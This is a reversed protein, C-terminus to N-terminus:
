LSGLLHDAHYARIQLPAQQQTKGMKEHIKGAGGQQSRECGVERGQFNRGAGQQIVAQGKGELQGDAGQRVLETQMPVQCGQAAQQGSQAGQKGLRQDEAAEDADAVGAEM